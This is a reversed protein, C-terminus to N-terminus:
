KQKLKTRAVRTALRWLMGFVVSGKGPFSTDTDSFKKKKRTVSVMTLFALTLGTSNKESGTKFSALSLCELKNQQKSLLYSSILITINVGLTMIINSNKKM